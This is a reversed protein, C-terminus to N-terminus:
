VAAGGTNKVNVMTESQKESALLHSRTLLEITAKRMEQYGIAAAAPRVIFVLDHGTILSLTRMIERLRRKLKNRVVAGGVKKSISFGYRSFLLSNSAARLVLYRSAWSQGHSYVQAFHQPRTLFQEGRM